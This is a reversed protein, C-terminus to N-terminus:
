PSETVDIIYSRARPKVNATKVFLAFFTYYYFVICSKTPTRSSHFLDIKSMNRLFLMYNFMIYNQEITSFKRVKFNGSGIRKLESSLIDKVVGRQIWFIIQIKLRFNIVLSASIASFESKVDRNEFTTVISYISM